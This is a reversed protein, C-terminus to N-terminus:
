PLILWDGFTKNWEPPEYDNFGGGDCFTLEGFYLKDNINYLDVRVHTKSASLKESLHLMLELNVPKQMSELYLPANPCENVLPQFKWEPSYFNRKHDEFRDLDVEIIKPKGNFCFIKYDNIGNGINAIMFKEAIIRPKIKKYIWERSVWYYNRSLRKKFYKRANDIDFSQKDRCIKISGSDHTCKLVFQEPLTDFPIDDFSDWVGYLPILYEEGITKAVYKRVEYKDALDIYDAQRDYLKLWQLKENYLVPKKLNLKQGTMRCYKYRLYSRDSLLRKPIFLLPIVGPDRLVKKIKRKIRETFNNKM